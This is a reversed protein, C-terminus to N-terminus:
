KENDEEELLWEGFTLKVTGDENQGEKTGSWEWWKAHLKDKDGGFLDCNRPPKTTAARIKKWPCEDSADGHPEEQYACNYECCELPDDTESCCWDRVEIALKVAERLAASNGVPSKKMERLEKLWDALQRHQQGCPTDNVMEEAHAIAEDLSLPKTKCIEAGSM